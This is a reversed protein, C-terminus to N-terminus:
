LLVCYGTLGRMPSVFVAGTATRLKEIRVVLVGWVVMRMRVPATNELFSFDLGRGYLGTELDDSLKVSDEV